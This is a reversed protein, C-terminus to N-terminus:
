FLYELGVYTMRGAQPNYRLSNTPYASIGGYKEDTINDLRLNLVFDGIKTNLMYNMTLDLTFFGDVEMAPNRYSVAYDGSETDSSNNSISRNYWSSSSFIDFIVTFNKIPEMDFRFKNIWEPMMRFDDIEDGNPLIENGKAYSILMSANLKLPKIINQFRATFDLGTLKSEADSSNVSVGAYENVANPHKTPDIAMTGSSILASIKNIYLNAELSINEGILQRVGFETAVFEEPELDANPISWYDAKLQNTVPDVTFVAVSNYILYPPPAKFAESYSARVTTKPSLNFQAAIRPNFSSGYESHNDYRGGAMITILSNTYTGQLFVGINNYTLPNFGFDGFVEHQYKGRAPLDTSFPKYFGSDFEIDLDNTKPLGGSYQYSLGGVFEFNDNLSYVAVEEFLIDDSAQYKYLPKEYFIMGFASKTDLRYNLYSLNTNFSFKSKQFSHKLAFKNMTEGWILDPNNYLYFDTTQGLSSNDNRNMYDYHFQFNGFHAQVGINKSKSTLDDYKVNNGFLDKEGFIDEDEYTEYLNWDKRENLLGYVNFKVKDSIKFNTFFNLNYYDNGFSTEINGATKDPNYTIINIVGALADAGYLASAPGFVVEIREINKMNVQAGIPLGDTVSPTIPVGNIMIKTYYNGYLGRMLFTEGHVGSGPQSVKIGPLDKMVDVLTHYNNKLIEKRSIVQVTVPLDKINKKSRSATTIEVSLLEELTMMQPSEEQAFVTHAFSLICTLILLNLKKM